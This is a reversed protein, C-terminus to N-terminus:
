NAEEQIPLRWQGTLLKQMLGRKQTKLAAVSQGLLDIEQRLANLYRAIATQTNIKPLPITIAAFESFSVTERVSGQASNKIRQRAEHSNLWHLFYDSDVKAEDLRFVVYMPSLVGDDWGDLRAISGVNIRSPNYAYQGRRVIKYNSLDDSAVRREFQEEPLVFGRSNTVSLVRTCCSGSNRESVECAFTGVHTRPHQGRSILRSLEHTYHREKAAILREATEIATDWHAITAAIARQEKAGPSFLPFERLQASNLTSLGTSGKACSLLYNRGHDSRLQLALFEPLMQSNPLIRISFIHNQHVCDPIQGNWICGRGLNEPNGNGEVLLIDGPKLTFRAVQNAPVDIEKIDSLDLFGDQVNAVRLYPKKVTPGERKSNKSLGSRVEAVRHLLTSEWGHPAKM